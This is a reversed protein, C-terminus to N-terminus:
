MSFKHYNTIYCYSILVTSSSDLIIVKCPNYSYFDSCMVPQILHTWPGTHSCTIVPPRLSCGLLWFLRHKGKGTGEGDSCTGKWVPGWAPSCPHFPTSLYPGLFTPICRQILWCATEWAFMIERTRERTFSAIYQSNKTKSQKNVFTYHWLDVKAIDDSTTKSDLFERQEM